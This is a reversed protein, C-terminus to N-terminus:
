VKTSHLKPSENRTSLSIWTLGIYSEFWPGRSRCTFASSSFCRAGYSTFVMGNGQSINFIYNGSFGSCNWHYIYKQILYYDNFWSIFRPFHSFKQWYFRKLGDLYIKRTCYKMSVTYPPVSCSKDNQHLAILWEPRRSQVVVKTVLNSRIQVGFRTLNM